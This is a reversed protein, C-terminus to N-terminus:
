TTKKGLRFLKIANKSTVKLVEELSINKLEAIRMAVALLTLSTNRAKRLQKKQIDPCYPKVYPGDTELLINELSTEIVAKELAQKQPTDMLLAGGIGIRLGLDAYYRAVDASGCFCHCVGGHLYHRYKKLIRIADSDADRIHLILPLKKKHALKLQFIFWMKQRFRHQQRRPLHYDLGTEGIAVISAHDSLKVIQKRQRWHLKRVVKDGKNTVCKYQYTRTPHVGVAPFLFGLYNDSFSLLKTNSEIDIAPEICFAIGAAKLRDILQERTGRQITFRDDEFSLYPFEDNYLFHSLHIHTDIIM